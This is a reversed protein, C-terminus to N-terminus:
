YAQKARATIIRHFCMYMCRGFGIMTLDANDVTAQHVEVDTADKSMGLLSAIFSKFHQGYNM